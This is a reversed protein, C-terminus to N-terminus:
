GFNSKPLFVLPKPSCRLHPWAKCRTWLASPRAYKSSARFLNPLWQSQSRVSMRLRVPTKHCPQCPNRLPKPISFLNM